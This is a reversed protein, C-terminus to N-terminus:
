KAKGFEVVNGGSGDILAMFKRAVSEMILRDEKEYRHRDYVDAISSEAHNLIRNMADRGHGLGTITSGCTRRLDHPTAREAGLKKCIARMAIDLARIPGGRPAKFVFESAEMEKIIRQAPESLWIRNSKGNKTGPWDLKAVPEGPMEWWGDVIHETRMHAVEGPRQGTLLIMKLAMSEVFGADDFAAWFRPLESDSLIRERDTTANREIGLCPHVFPTRVLEERVGWSFIASAAAVIQNALIPAEIAAMLAKVDARRIDTVKLKGWRPLLHKKVLGDAQQWSKNKRKAYDCYRAALEEFTGSIREAKRDAQPDDGDGVRVSLKAALKRADAHAIMDVRGITYWRPKGNRSYIYKWARHGSPQVQVALGPTKTDWVLYPRDRPKLHAIM